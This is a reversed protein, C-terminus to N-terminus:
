KFGRRRCRKVSKIDNGLTVDRGYRSKSKSKTVGYRQRLDEATRKDAARERKRPDKWEKLSDVHHEWLERVEMPPWKTEHGLAKRVTADARVEADARIRAAEDARERAEQEQRTQRWCEQIGAMFREQASVPVWNGGAAARRSRVQFGDDLLRRLATSREPAPPNDSLSPPGGPDVTFGTIVGTVSDTLIRGFVDPTEGLPSVARLKRVTTV